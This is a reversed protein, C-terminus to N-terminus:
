VHCEAVSNVYEVNLQRVRIAVDVLRQAQAYSTMRGFRRLAHQGPHEGIAELVRFTDHKRVPDGLRVLRRDGYAVQRTCQLDPNIDSSRFRGAQMSRALGSSANGHICMFIGRLQRCPEATLPNMTDIRELQICQVELPKRAEGFPELAAGRECQCHRLLM